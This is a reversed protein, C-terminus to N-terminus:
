KNQGRKENKFNLALIENKKQRLDGLPDQNTKLDRAKQLLKKFTSAQKEEETADTLSNKNIYENTESAHFVLTIHQEQVAAQQIAATTPEEPTPTPKTALLPVDTVNEVPTQGSPEPIRPLLTRSEQPAPAADKKPTGYKSRRPVASTPIKATKATDTLAPIPLTHATAPTHNESSVGTQTHHALSDSAPQWYLYILGGALAPLLLSAAIKWWAAKRKSQPQAHHIREWAAAPVPRSLDALKDRFLKDPQQNM